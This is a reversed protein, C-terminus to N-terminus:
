KMIGQVFGMLAKTNQSDSGYITLFLLSTISTVKAEQPVAHFRKLMLVKLATLPITMLATLELSLTQFGDWSRIRTTKQLKCIKLLYESQGVSVTFDPQLRLFCPDFYHYANFYILNPLKVSQLAQVEELQLVIDPVVGSPLLPAASIDLLKGLHFFSGQHGDKHVDWPNTIMYAGGATFSNKASSNAESLPAGTVSTAHNGFGACGGLRLASIDNMYTILARGFADKPREMVAQYLHSEVAECCLLVMNQIAVQHKRDSRKLSQEMLRISTCVYAIVSSMWYYKCCIMFSVLTLDAETMPAADMASKNMLTDCPIQTSAAASVSVDATEETALFGKSRLWRSIIYILLQVRIAAYAAYAMGLRSSIGCGDGTADVAGELYIKSIDSAMRIYELVDNLASGAPLHLAAPGVKADIEATSALEVDSESKSDKGSQRVFSSVLNTWFEQGPHNQLVISFKCESVTYKGEAAAFYGEYFASPHGKGVWPPIKESSKFLSRIRKLAEEMM